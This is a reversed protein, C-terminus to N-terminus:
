HLTEKESYEDEEATPESKKESKPEDTTSESAPPTAPPTFLLDPMPLTVLNKGEPSKKVQCNMLWRYGLKNLYVRMENNVLLDFNHEYLKSMQRETFFNTTM